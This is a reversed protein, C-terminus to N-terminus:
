VFFSPIPTMSVWSESCWPWHEPTLSCIEHIKRFFCRFLDILLRDYCNFALLFRIMGALAWQLRWYGVFWLWGYVCLWWNFKLNISLCIWISVCFWSRRLFEWIACLFICCGLFCAFQLNCFEGFNTAVRCVSGVNGAQQPSVLVVRVRELAGGHLARKWLRKSANAPSAM